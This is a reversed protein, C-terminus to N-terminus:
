PPGRCALPPVLALAARDPGRESILQWRGNACHPCRGIEIGAVRRMFAQVDQTAQANPQPMLLLARARALQQAKVSPALLGYHRIRKFGPPLVHQLLRAVFEVGELAIFRKGVPKGHEDKSRVRLSVREGEISGM